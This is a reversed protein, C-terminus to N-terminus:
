ALLQDAAELGGEALQGDGLAVLVVEGVLLVVALIRADNEDVGADGGETDGRLADEGVGVGDLGAALEHVAGGVLEGDEGAGLAPGEDVLGVEDGAGLVGDELDEGEVGLLASAEVPGEVKLEGVRMGGAALGGEDAGEGGGKALEVHPLLGGDEGDDVGGADAVAVLAGAVKLDEGDIWCTTSGTTSRRTASRGGTGLLPARRRTVIAARRRTLLPTRRRTLLPTRRRTLLPTRRRTVVAAWRRTVVAAWRGALVARRRRALLPTRRRTMIRTHKLNLKKM